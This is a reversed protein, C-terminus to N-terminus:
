RCGGGGGGCWEAGGENESLFVGDEGSRAFVSRENGGAIDDEHGSQRPIVVRGGHGDPGRGAEPPPIIKAERSRSFTCNQVRGLNSRKQPDSHHSSTNKTKKKKGIPSLVKIRKM